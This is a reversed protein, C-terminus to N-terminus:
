QSVAPLTRPVKLIFVVLAIVSLVAAFLYPMGPMEFVAGPGSFGSFFGSFLLPGIISTISSLSTLAGQLEGQASSPVGAASISRLAPDSVCEISALVIVVFVMWGESAFTYGLFGLICFVLGIVAVRWEGFRRIMGPLVLGLVLATFVGYIGLSFGIMGEGWGYRYASVFSWVVPYSVHALWFLFMVVVIWGIGKYNRMQKLAGLPNARRWDFARRNAPDLPEPLLFYAIAFNAFAILAAVYFPVRPGFEGLLGGVVPGLTFGVGFSISVFGFNRARNEDTSVDAIYAAATAYSAGSIGALVRGVFLMWYSGALACILNDIAFTFVSFLLVPRRGFRDSLNGILTGFLFQMAAYSLFLWGGEISAHSMDAGTLEKLYAPMVPMILAIGMMDMLQIVFVLMLGRRARKEDIM